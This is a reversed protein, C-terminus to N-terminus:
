LSRQFRKITKTTIGDQEQGNFFFKLNQEDAMNCLVLTTVGKDICFGIGRSGCRLPDPNSNHIEFIGTLHAPAYAIGMKLDTKNLVRNDIKRFM